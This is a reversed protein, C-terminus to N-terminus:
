SLKARVDEEIKCAKGEAEQEFTLLDHINFTSNKVVVVASNAIHMELFSEIGGLRDYQECHTLEHLLWNLDKGIPDISWPFFIENGFTIANREIRTNVGDAYRIQSLNLSPFHARIARILIDPISKWKGDRDAEQQMTIHYTRILGIAVRNIGTRNLQHRLEAELLKETGPDEFIVKVDEVLQLPNRGGLIPPLVVGVINEASPNDLATKVDLINGLASLLNM